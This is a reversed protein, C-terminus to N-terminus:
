DARVVETVVFVPGQVCASHLEPEVHGRVTVEGSAGALDHAARGTLTYGHGDETRMVICGSEVGEVLRGELTLLGHEMM